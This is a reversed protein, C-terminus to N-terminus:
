CGFWLMPMVMTLAVDDPPIGSKTKRAMDSQNIPQDILKASNREEMTEVTISAQSSKM